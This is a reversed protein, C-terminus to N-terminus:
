LLEKEKSYEHHKIKIDILDNLSVNLVIAIDVLRELSPIENNTEYRSIVRQDSNLLKALDNQSLNKSKRISKLNFNFKEM